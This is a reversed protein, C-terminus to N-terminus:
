TDFFGNNDYGKRGRADLALCLDDGRRRKAALLRLRMFFFLNVDRSFFAEILTITAISAIRPYFLCGMAQLCSFGRM